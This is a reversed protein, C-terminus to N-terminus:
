ASIENNNDFTPNNLGIHGNRDNFKVSSPRETNGNKENNFKVSRSTVGNAVHVMRSSNQRENKKDQVHEQWQETTKKLVKKQQKRWGKHKYYLVELIVIVIGAGIGGAVMIFVGLMHKLGLTTASTTAKKCNGFNIWTSELEEMSGSEHFHLVSLSIDDSWPSGKPMGIGYGSRGFLDGVTVLDCDNSTEHFLVPSDWIFAKLEGNKVKQIGDSDNNVNLKTMFTYMTSLEVQRRFYADVSSNTVTAYKFSDMDPNRLKPDDIGTAVPKPRDLVLFAALNATYSAVIIMAFGAWVMGLVRASFSRPTGEGIGSNLLVGWSFWMASSLNLADEEKNSQALRYRGFPSFRDLLYLIV